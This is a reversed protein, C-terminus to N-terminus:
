TTSLRVGRYAGPLDPIGSLGLGIARDIDDDRASSSGMWSSPTLSSDTLSSGRMPPSGSRHQRRRQNGKDKFPHSPSSTPSPLNSSQEDADRLSSVLSQWERSVRWVPASANLSPPSHATLDKPTFQPTQFIPNMIPDM